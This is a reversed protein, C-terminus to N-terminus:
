SILPVLRDRAETLLRRIVSSTKFGPTPVPGTQSPAADRTVVISVAHHTIPIVQNPLARLEEPGLGSITYGEEPAVPPSEIVLSTVQAPLLLLVKRAFLKLTATTGAVRLRYSSRLLASNNMWRVDGLGNIFRANRVLIDLGERLDGHHGRLIMPRGLYAAVLLESEEIDVLAWRPMVPCGRVSETPHFGLSQLWDANPNHALLSGASLCAGEFAAGPLESLMDASCAGHPPVMVRDVPIGAHRELREIRRRAQQLVVSCGRQSTERALEHRTHNNGHVLLSLRDPHQRFQAATKAHTYWTDLPITAISVHFNEQVAKALLEAYNIYGYSPWHLNPDDFMFTARLAQRIGVGTSKFQALLNLLPLNALFTLGSFVQAFSGGQPIDLLPLASRFYKCGDTTQVTWLAGTHTRALVCEGHLPTLSVCNSPITCLVGQGRFPWPVNADDTFQVRTRETRRNDSDTIPLACELTAAPAGLQTPWQYRPKGIHLAGEALTGDSVFSVGVLEELTALLRQPASGTDVLVRLKSNAIGSGCRGSESSTM